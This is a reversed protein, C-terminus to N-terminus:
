TREITEDHLLVLVSDRTLRIDCEIIAPMKSATHAFTELANEPFGKSVGGRHASVLPYSNEGYTFFRYLDDMSQINFVPAVHQIGRSDTSNVQFCSTLSITLGALLPILKNRTKYTNM